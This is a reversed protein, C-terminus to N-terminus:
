VRSAPVAWRRASTRGKRPTGVMTAAVRDTLPRRCRAPLGRPGALASRGRGFDEAITAGHEVGGAICWSDGPSVEHAQDGIRLRIRGSVLYGTQEHPHSHTPLDHGAALRFETLVPSDGYCLVRLGIGPAVTRYGDAAHDTFMEIRRRETM